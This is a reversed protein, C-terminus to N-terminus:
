MYPSILFVGSIFTMLMGITGLLWSKVYKRQHRKSDEFTRHQVVGGDTTNEFNYRNWEEGIKHGKWLILIGCIFFMLAM